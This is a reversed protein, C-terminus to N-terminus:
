AAEKIGLIEVTVASAALVLTFPGEGTVADITIQYSIAPGSSTALLTVTCDDVREDKMAEAKIQGALRDADTAPDVSSGVLDQLDIGYNAEEEGGRLMGRPTILRRFIAEAVLRVGTAYRGTRLSTTCSIDRGFANDNAAAIM